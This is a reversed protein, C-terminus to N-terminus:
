SEQMKHSFRLVIFEAPRVAAMGIEVILRGELIDLATMTEGLGVKVYFAEKTTAGALAGQRWQITLFNEIMARIRVWTRADNNEFVMPESAKKTSEEVFIFFRRVNIYRWENDNGALTRAGWVLIGKGTFARIANISKGTDHINLSGQEADTLKYAPNIVARLSVNAPAKWVGRSRDTSAYVGAAAGSPPVLSMEKRIREALNKFFPHQNFLALEAQNTRFMVNEAVSVFAEAIVNFATQLFTSNAAAHATEAITNAGANSFDTANAVISAVTVGGIWDENNVLSYDTNVDAVARALSISSMVNANKEFAILNTLQTRLGTNAELSTLLTALEPNLGADNELDRFSLALQRVFRMMDEFAPRVLAATGATLVTERLAQFRASLPNFNNRNLTVVTIKGFVNQEETIRARLATILVDLQPNGSITNITANPIAVPVAQDDVFLLQAFSVDVLYSSAIWPYYTAGYKLNQTGVQNRFQLIPTTAHDPARYGETMDLIAFRDQLRGCQEIMAKHLNGANVFDPTGDPQKLAVSDPSILLTPEDVKELAHLGGRLGTTNTGFIVDATFNGVTVVYCPGGGNDFYHRLADYLYYRRRNVPTINLIPFAPGPGLQVTYTAPTYSGGFVTTFELLSNLRVPRNILTNGAADQTLATHGVFAPIATAVAAVSPPFLAIEEIFVGPTKYDM